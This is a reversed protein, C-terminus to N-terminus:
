WKYPDGHRVIKGTECPDARVDTLMRADHMQLQALTLRNKREWRTRSWFRAIRSPVRGSAAGFTAPAKKSRDTQDPLSLHACLQWPVVPRHRTQGRLQSNRETMASDSHERSQPFCPHMAEAYAAFGEIAFTLLWSLAAHIAGPGRQESSQQLSTDSGSPVEDSMRITEGCGAEFSGSWEDGHVEYITRM